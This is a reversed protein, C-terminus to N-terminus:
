SPEELGLEQLTENVMAVVGGINLSSFEILRDTIANMREELPLRPAEIALWVTLEIGSQRIATAVAVEIASVVAGPADLLAPM